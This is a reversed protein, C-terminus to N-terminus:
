PTQEKGRHPTAADIARALVRVVAASDHHLYHDGPLAMTTLNRQHWLPCLSGPETAGHVCLVPSWDLRRALPLAPADDRFSWAGGPTAHLLVGDDPVILAVLPVRARVAPPLAPAGVILVGAGFSQGILVVRRAGPLALARRTADAVLAVTEAPTRRPAFATLSNIGLVPIGRAALGAAIRPGMGTTFGIDGSVFVAVTGNGPATAPVLTYIPGGLYGIRRAYGALGGLAVLIAVILVVTRRRM